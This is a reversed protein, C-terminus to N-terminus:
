LQPTVYKALVDLYIQAMSSKEAFFFAGIYNIEFQTQQANCLRQLTRSQIFVPATHSIKSEALQLSTLSLRFITHTVAFVLSSVILTVLICLSCWDVAAEVPHHPGSGTQTPDFHSNAKGVTWTVGAM